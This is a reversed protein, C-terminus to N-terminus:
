ASVILLVEGFYRRVVFIKLLRLKVAHELCIYLYVEDVSDLCYREKARFEQNREKGWEKDLQM